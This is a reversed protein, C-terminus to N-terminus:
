ITILTPPNVTRTGDARKEMKTGIIHMDLDRQKNKDRERKANKTFLNKDNYTQSMVLHM